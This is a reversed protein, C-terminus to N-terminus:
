AAASTTPAGCHPCTVLEAPFLGHCYSCQARGTRADSRIKKMEPYLAELEISSMRDKDAAPSWVVECAVLREPSVYNLTELWARVQEASNIRAFDALEGRAALIISVVVLGTGEETLRVLDDPVDGDRYAGDANRVLEDRFRARADQAQSEFLPRARNMSMPSANLIGAYLWSDKVRRLSLATERLMAMRGESTGTDAESAIRELETQLWARAKWDVGVRLVSIDVRDGPVFGGAPPSPAIAIPYVQPPSSWEKVVSWIMKLVFIGLFIVAVAILVPGFEDCSASSGSHSYYGNSSDYGSGFITSRKSRPSGFSWSHSASSGSSSSHSVSYGGGSYGGGSSGGSSGGGSSGGSSWNGGGMSGGTRQAAAPSATALLLVLAAVSGWVTTRM